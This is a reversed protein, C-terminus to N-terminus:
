EAQDRAWGSEIPQGEGTGFRGLRAIRRAEWAVAWDAAPRTFLQEEGDHEPTRTRNEDIMRAEM